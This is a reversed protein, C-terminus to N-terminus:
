SGAGYARMLRDNLTVCLKRFVAPRGNDACAWAHTQGTIYNRLAIEAASLTTSKGYFDGSPRDLSVFKFLGGLTGKFELMHQVALARGAGTPNVTGLTGIAYSYIFLPPLDPDPFSYIDAYDITTGTPLIDKWVTVLDDLMDTVPIVTTDWCEVDPVEGVVTVTLNDLAHTWEHGGYATTYHIKIFAPVLGDTAM